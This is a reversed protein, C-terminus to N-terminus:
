SRVRDRERLSLEAVVDVAALGDSAGAFEKDPQDADDIGDPGDLDDLVDCEGLHVVVERDERGEVIDCTELSERVVWDVPRGDDLDM